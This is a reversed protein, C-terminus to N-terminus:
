TGNELDKETINFFDIWDKCAMKPRKKLIWKIAEEKLEDCTVFKTGFLSDAKIEKLTKLKMM